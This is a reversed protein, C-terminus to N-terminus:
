FLGVVRNKLAKVYKLMDAGKTIRVRCMGYLLKGQKKGDLINVNVFKEVPVGTIKSWFELCKKKDLDKYIRISIRLRDSNINFVEKLGKVFVKILDPDSNSLGFDGKSGEGWYLATLFIMKEKDSLSNITNDAKDKAKNEALKMRKFSGGRKGFWVKKYEPLIKVGQIYRFVSGYGVKVEKHIEPLSYGRQRLLKIRKITEKSILKPM